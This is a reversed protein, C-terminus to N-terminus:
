SWLEASLRHSVGIIAHAFDGYQSIALSYPFTVGGARSVCNIQYLVAVAVAVAVLAAEGRHQAKSSGSM